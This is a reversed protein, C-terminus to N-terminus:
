SENKAKRFTSPLHAVLTENRKRKNCDIEYEEGTDINKVKQRSVREVRHSLVLYHLARSVTTKSVNTLAAIDDYNFSDDPLQKYIREVTKQAIGGVMGVIGM